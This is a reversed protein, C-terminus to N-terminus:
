EEKFEVTDTVVAKINHIIKILNLIFVTTAVLIGVLMSWAGVTMGMFVTNTLMETTLPIFQEVDVVEAGVAINAGGIGAGVVTGRATILEKSM